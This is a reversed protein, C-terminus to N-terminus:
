RDRADVFIGFQATRSYRMAIRTVRPLSILCCTIHTKVIDVADQISMEFLIFSVEFSLVLTLYYSSVTVVSNASFTFLSVLRSPFLLTIRLSADPTSTYSFAIFLHLWINVAM